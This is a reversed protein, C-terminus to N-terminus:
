EAQLSAVAGLSEAQRIFSNAESETAFDISFQEGQLLADVLSKAEALGRPAAGQTRLLKIFSVSKFGPKWGTLIVNPM